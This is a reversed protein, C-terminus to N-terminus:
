RAALWGRHCNIQQLAHIAKQMAEFRGDHHQIKQELGVFRAENKADVRHLKEHIAICLPQRHTASFNKSYGWLLGETM